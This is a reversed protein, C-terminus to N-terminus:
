GADVRAAGPVVAPPPMLENRIAAVAGPSTHCARAITRNPAEPARRIEFHILANRRIRM